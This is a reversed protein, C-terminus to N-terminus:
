VKVKEAPIALTNFNPENLENMRYDFLRYSFKQFIKSIERKNKEGVEIYIKPRIDELIKFCGELVLLEAGEVDIKIFDPSRFRKLLYDCYFTPVFYRERVGGKTNRDTSNIDKLSNSARGREAIELELFDIENSMAIPLIHIEYGNYAKLSKTKKM